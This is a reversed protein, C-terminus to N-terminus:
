DLPIINHIYNSLNWQCAIVNCFTNSISSGSNFRKSMNRESVSYAETFHESWTTDCDLYVRGLLKKRTWTKKSYTQTYFFENCRKRKAGYKKNIEILNTNKKLKFPM